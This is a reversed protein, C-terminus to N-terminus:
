MKGQRSKHRWWFLVVAFGVVWTLVAQGVQNHSKTPSFFFSLIAAWMIVTFVVLFIVYLWKFRVSWM